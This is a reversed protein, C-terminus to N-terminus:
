IRIDNFELNIVAELAGIAGFAWCSGCQGQNRIPTTWDGGRYNRWDFSQPLMGASELKVTDAQAYGQYIFGLGYLPSPADDSLAEGCFVPVVTLCLFLFLLVIVMRKKGQTYYM